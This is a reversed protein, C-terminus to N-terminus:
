DGTFFEGYRLGDHIEAHCNSCLLICKDLEECIKRWSRTYGSKAIGFNKDSCHHFVLAAVCRDYGCLQCKGGKYEIAMQKLKKRRQSVHFKRRCCLSCFHKQKGTLDKGCSYWVCKQKSREEM